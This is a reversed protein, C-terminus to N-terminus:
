SQHGEVGPELTEGTATDTVTEVLDNVSTLRTATQKFHTMIDNSQIQEAAPKLLGMWRGIFDGPSLPEANPDLADM